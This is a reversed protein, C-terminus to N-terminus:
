NMAGSFNLTQKLPVNLMAINFEGNNNRKDIFKLLSYQNSFCHPLLTCGDGCRFYKFSKLISWKDYFCFLWVKRFTWFKKGIEYIWECTKYEELLKQIFRFMIFDNFNRTFDVVGDYNLLLFCTSVIFIVNLLVDIVGLVLGGTKLHLCGFANKVM